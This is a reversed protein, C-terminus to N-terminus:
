SAKRQTEEPQNERTSLDRGSRTRRRRRSRTAGGAPQDTGDGTNRAVADAAQIQLGAPDRHSKM